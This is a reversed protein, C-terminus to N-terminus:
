IQEYKKVFYYIIKIVCYAIIVGLINAVLDEIQFSRKPILLHALELTISLFFLTYLLKRFYKTKNYIFFGIISIYIYCVLHNITTGYPNSILDPQQSLNGYLFYGILSGPYLSIIVLFLLSIYFIIKSFFIM